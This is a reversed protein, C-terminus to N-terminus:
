RAAPVFRVNNKKLNALIFIGSLVAQTKRDFRQVRGNIVRVHHNCLQIWAHRKGLPLTHHIGLGDVIQDFIMDFRNVM